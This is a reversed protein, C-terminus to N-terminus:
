SPEPQKAGTAPHQQQERAGHQDGAPRRRPGDLWTGADRCPNGSQSRPGNRESPTAPNVECRKASSSSPTVTPYRTTSAHAPATRRARPRDRADHGHVEHEQQRRRQEGPVDEGVELVRAHPRDVPEVRVGVRRHPDGAVEGEAEGGLVPDGARVPRQPREDGVRDRREPHLGPQPEDCPARPARRAPFRRAPTARPAASRARGPRHRRQEDPEVRQHHEVGDAARM